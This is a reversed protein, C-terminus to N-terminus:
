CRSDQMWAQLPNELPAESFELSTPNTDAPSFLDFCGAELDGRAERWTLFIQDHFALKLFSNSPFKLTSRLM